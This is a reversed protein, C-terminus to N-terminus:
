ELKDADLLNLEKLVVHIDRALVLLLPIVAGLTFLIKILKWIMTWEGLLCQKKIIFLNSFM